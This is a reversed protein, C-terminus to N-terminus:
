AAKRYDRFRGKSQAQSSISGSLSELLEILKVKALRLSFNITKARSREDDTVDVLEKNYITAATAAHVDHGNKIAEIL